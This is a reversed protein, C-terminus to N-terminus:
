RANNKCNFITRRFLRIQHWIKINIEEFIEVYEKLM